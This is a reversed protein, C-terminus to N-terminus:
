RDKIKAMIPYTHYYKMLPKIQMKRIIINLM